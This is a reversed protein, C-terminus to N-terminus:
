APRVGGGAMCGVDGAGHAAAAGGGAAGPVLRGGASIVVARHGQRVLERAVELTGREVGGGNLAPVLQAVSLRVM